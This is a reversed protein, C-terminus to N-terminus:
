PLYLTLEQFYESRGDSWNIKVLYKGSVSVDPVLLQQYASDVLVPFYQDYQASSPRYLQITGSVADAKGEGPYHVLVGDGTWEVEVKEELKGANAKKQIQDQFALEKLYYDEEVLDVEMM